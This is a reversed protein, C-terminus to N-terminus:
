EAKMLVSIIEEGFVKKQWTKMENVFELEGTNRPNKVALNSILSRSCLLAPDMELNKAMNDRWRKLAKIKLPVSPSLMPIRENPYVPLLLLPKELANKITEIIEKGYMHIQRRSLINMNELRRLSVPKLRVLKIISDNGFVKFPPKDKKEAIGKRFQLLDELIVLSRPRIRGAGKFKLYLPENESPNSRVQSLYECEENVWDLRGKRKLEEELLNALAALYIVDKAAYAIMDEPLPRLSWDKKQYKKDLSINFRRRLVMDLGTERIGLFRCAMQTDFLNSIEINFDRYLSRVDYDSGHLIKKVDPSSFFPKLPSLDEVLLPDIVVNIKQTAMQVLCVKEKFHYMSDAELDVAIVKEKELHKAFNELETGTDIIHYNNKDKM